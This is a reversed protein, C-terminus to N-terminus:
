PGSAHQSGAARLDNVQRATCGTDHSVRSCLRGKGLAAVVARVLTEDASEVLVGPRSDVRDGNSLTVKEEGSGDGAQASQHVGDVLVAVWMCKSALKQLLDDAGSQNGVAEVGSLLCENAVQDLLIAKWLDNTRYGVGVKTVNAKKPGKLDQVLLGSCANADKLYSWGGEDM